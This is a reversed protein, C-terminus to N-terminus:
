TITHALTSETYKHFAQYLHAYNDNIPQTCQPYVLPVSWTCLVTFCSGNKSFPNIYCCRARVSRYHRPCHWSKNCFEYVTRYRMVLQEFRAILGIMPRKATVEFLEVAEATVKARLEDYQVTM